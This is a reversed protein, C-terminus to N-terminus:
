CSVDEYEEVLADYISSAIDEEPGCEYAGPRYSTCSLVEYLESNQGSHFESAYWYIACHMEFDDVNDGFKSKVFAILENLKQSHSM